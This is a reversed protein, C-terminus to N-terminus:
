SRNSSGTTSSDKEPAPLPLGLYKHAIADAYIELPDILIKGSRGKKRQQQLLLSLETLAFVVYQTGVEQNLIDRLRNLGAETAGESKVLYALEDIQEMARGSLPLVEIGELPERYASWENLDTVYRIGVLTIRNIDHARLWEGTVEPMSVFETSSEACIDRIQEAFYPTTHCALTLISVGQRCLEGAAEKLAKWVEEERHDLEMSLGMEPVSHVVVPPMSVDGCCNPGLLERVRQNVQNWLAIGSEPANGTIIGIEKHERVGWLRPQGEPDPEAIRAWAANDIKKVLEKAYFEVAWTLDGANTMVTGPVGIPEILDEDFMQLVSSELFKLDLVYAIQECTLEASGFPNVRGYETGLRALEAESLRRPVPQARLARQLLEMNLRQDARCHAVFLQPKGHANVFSGFFSKLEDWLPIGEHGLRQRKHAADRCSRAELNRSLRFWVSRSSLFRVTQVVPQPVQTEGPRLLAKVESPKDKLKLDM